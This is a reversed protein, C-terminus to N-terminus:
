RICSKLYSKKTSRWTSKVLDVHRRGRCYSLMLQKYRELVDILQSQWANSWNTTRNYGQISRAELFAIDAYALGQM